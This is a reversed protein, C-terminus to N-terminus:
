YLDYLENRLKPHTYFIDNEDRPGRKRLRYPDIKVAEDKILSSLPSKGIGGPGVIFLTNKIM